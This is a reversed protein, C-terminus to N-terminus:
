ILRKNTNIRDDKQLLRVNSESSRNPSILQYGIQNDADKFLRITKTVIENSKDPSILPPIIDVFAEDERWRVSFRANYVRNQGVEHVEFIGNNKTQFILYDHAYYRFEDTEMDTYRSQDTKKWIGGEVTPDAKFKDWTTMNKNVADLAHKIQLLPGISDNELPKGTTNLIRIIDTNTLTPDLSKMLAVAGTVIPAAMSTGDFAAFRRGSVTSVVGVGPASIQSAKIEHKEGEIEINFNGFNSFSAKNLNRDVADVRVVTASRKAFDMLEFLNENGSAWVITCYGRDLMDSIYNWSSQLRKKGSVWQRVQDEIGIDAKNLFGLSANIVQAGHHLAYLVAGVITFSNMNRGLSIPMFTCDPAIGVTGLDNMQAGILGLVHTGHACKLDDSPPLVNTTGNEASVPNEIRMGTFDPHSLDFYDDIIAVKVSPSGMTIEWAEPALVERLHWSTDSEKMAPDSIEKARGFIEVVDIYFAVDNIQSSLETRILERKEEPVSLLVMQTSKDVIKVTCDPHLQTFRSVFQDIAPSVKSKSQDIIVFLHKGDIQGIGNPDDIIDDPNPEFPTPPNKVPMQPPTKNDPISDSISDVPVYTGGGLDPRDSNRKDESCRPLTTLFLLLFLFGVLALLFFLVRGFCGLCGWPRWFPYHPRKVQGEKQLFYKKMDAFVKYRNWYGERLRM